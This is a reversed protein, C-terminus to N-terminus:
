EPITCISKHVGWELSITVHNKFIFNECCHIILNREEQGHYILNQLCLLKPPPQEKWMLSPINHVKMAVQFVSTVPEESAVTGKGFHITNGHLLNNESKPELFVTEIQKNCYKNSYKMYINVDEVTVSYIETTHTNRLGPQTSICILYTTLHFSIQLLQIGANLQLSSFIWSFRRLYQSSPM